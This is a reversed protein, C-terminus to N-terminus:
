VEGLGAFLRTHSRDDVGLVEFWPQGPLTLVRVRDQVRLAIDPYKARDIALVAKASDFRVSWRQAVGGTMNSNVSNGNRFIAEIEVADRDVDLQGNKIFSVRVPGAFVRDVQLLLRDRLSHFRAALM